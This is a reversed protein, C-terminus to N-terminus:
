READPDPHEEDVWGSEPTWVVTGTAAVRDAWWPRTTHLEGREKAEKREDDAADEWARPDGRGADVCAAYDAPTMSDWTSVRGGIGVHRGVM